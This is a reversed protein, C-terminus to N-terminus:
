NRSKVLKVRYRNGVEDIVQMEYVGDALISLDISYIEDKWEKRDLYVIKGHMDYIKILEFLSRNAEEDLTNQLRIHLIDQFPIPYATLSNEYFEDDSFLGRRQKGNSCAYIKKYNNRTVSCTDTSDTATNEAWFKTEIKFSDSATSDCVVM